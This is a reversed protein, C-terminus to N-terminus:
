KHLLQKGDRTPGIRTISFKPWSSTSFLFGWLAPSPITNLEPRRMLPAIWLLRNPQAPIRIGSKQTRKPRAPTERGPQSSHTLRDQCQSSSPAASNCPQPSNLCQPAAPPCPAAAKEWDPHCTQSGWCGLFMKQVEPVWPAPGQWPSPIQPLRLQDWPKAPLWRLPM